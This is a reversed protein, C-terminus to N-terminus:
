SRCEGIMRDIAARLEPWEIPDIKIIGPDSNGAQSVTVFEGAGEDDISVTTARESFITEGNPVVLISLTRTEYTM